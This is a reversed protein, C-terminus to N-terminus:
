NRSNCLVNKCCCCCCGFGIEFSNNNNNSIYHLTETPFYGKIRNSCILFSILDVFFSLWYM